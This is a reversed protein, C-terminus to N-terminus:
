SRRAPTIALWRAPTTFQAHVHRACAPIMLTQGGEFPLSGAATGQADLVGSGTIVMWVIVRDCEPLRREDGPRATFEDIRFYEGDLLCRGNAIAPPADIAPLELRMCELAQDVHLRRGKRGWDYLRFTTDSPTQVEAVTVGAGLAHCSGSPLYHFDGPKVPVAKLLKPMSGDAVARRIDEHTVGDILGKYIVAGPEASLIYWGESKLHCAPHSAVYDATPHVQISLNEQAQLYKILLPFNGQETLAADGMVEHEHELILDHITRGALPGHDIVSRAPEASGTTFDLDAIHWHECGWVKPQIIPTFTM